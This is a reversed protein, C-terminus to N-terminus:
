GPVGSKCSLKGGKGPVGSKNGLKGGKGGIGIKDGKRRAASASRTARAGQRRCWGHWRQM